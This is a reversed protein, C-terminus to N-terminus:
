DQGINVETDSPKAAGSEADKKTDSLLENQLSAPFELEIKIALQQWMQTEIIRQEEEVNQQFALYAIKATAETFEQSGGVIIQPIRVAKWFFGSLYEIWPLPNMTANPPISLVEFEVTGSPIYINEGKAIAKDMKTIFEDIKTQNDEDLKFFIIPKVNRHMLLRQDAMSENRADIVWQVSRIISTGHIEDAVRDKTLHFIDNPEFKKKVRVTGTKSRQEYRIIIGQRDFVVTMSTPDLPKLNILTGTKPNRVIEAYSDGNVHSIISMNKLISDFTDVGNGIINDLIAQNRNDPIFVGDVEEGAKYGKGVTWTAKADIAAKLEPITHYYGYYKTFDPNLYETEKNDSIGETNIAGVEFNEQTNELNGVTAKSINTEVM